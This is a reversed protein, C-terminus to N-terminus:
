GESLKKELKKVYRVSEQVNIAEECISGSDPTFIMTPVELTVPMDPQAERLIPYCQALKGDGHGFPCGVRCPVGDDWWVKWDKLHTAAAYPALKQTCEVPDEKVPLANGTDVLSKVYPSDVSELIHIVEDSTLDEHNELLLPVKVREAVEALLKFNSITWQILNQRHDAPTCYREGGIFTRMARAGVESALELRKSLREFDFGGSGLELYLGLEDCRKGISRILAPDWGPIHMPDFHCGDLELETVKDIFWFVDRHNEPDEMHLHYSFSDLGLRVM